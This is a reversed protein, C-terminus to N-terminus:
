QVKEHANCYIKEIRQCAYLQARTRTRKKAIIACVIKENILNIVHKNIELTRGIFDANIKLM